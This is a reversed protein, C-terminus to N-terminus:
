CFNVQNESDKVFVILLELLKPNLFQFLDHVLKAVTGGLFYLGYCKIFVKMLRLSSFFVKKKSNKNIKNLNDMEKNYEKSFEDILNDIRVKDELNWLNDTTLNGHRGAWVINTYWSFFISNPFSSYTEPSQKSNLNADDLIDKYLREDQKQESYDEIKKLRVGAEIADDTFSSFIFLIANLAFNFIVIFVEEPHYNSENYFYIDAM